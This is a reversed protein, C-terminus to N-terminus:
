NGQGDPQSFRAEDSLLDMLVTYQEMTCGQTMLAAYLPGGPAGAPGAAEVASLVAEIVKALLAKM